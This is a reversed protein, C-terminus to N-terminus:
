AYSGMSDVASVTIIGQFVEALHAIEQAQDLGNVTHRANLYDPTKTDELMKMYHDLGYGYDHSHRRKDLPPDTDNFGGARMGGSLIMYAVEPDTALEPQEVLNIGTWASARGYNRLWTLQVYGRGYYRRRQLGHILIPQAYRAHGGRSQERVPQFSHGTEWKVTALLYSMHYLKPRPYILWDDRELFDLLRSLAQWVHPKLKGFAFQYAQGVRERDFLKKM